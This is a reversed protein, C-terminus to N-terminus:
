RLRAGLTMIEALEQQYQDFFGKPWNPIRGSPEIHLAKVSYDDDFFFISMDENSVKYEEKLAALRFANVIHESHTEVFIQVGKDALKALMFAVRAQAQPHLHAEPNEIIVINGKQAILATVVIPLIYSYGFGVNYAQFGRRNPNQKFQFEISLTSTREKGNNDNVMISGGNMIYDIWQSAAEQLNCKQNDETTSPTMEIPVKDKCTSLTNITFIGKRGVRHFEPIEMKEVFKVPGLRDASVYHVNSMGLISNIYSPFQKILTSQSTDQQENGGVTDFYDEDDIICQCMSGVKIDYDSLQYGFNLKHVKNTAKLLLNVSFNNQHDDTLIEDFDGLEILTGNLHLKELSNLQDKKVSQSMMLLSQLVSSKGRGNYGAFLNIRKLDFPIPQVCKFNGLKIQEIM